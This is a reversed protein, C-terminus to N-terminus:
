IDLITDQPFLSINVQMETSRIIANCGVVNIKTLYIYFIYPSGVSIVYLSKCFAYVNFLYFKGM